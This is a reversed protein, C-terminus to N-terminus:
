TFEMEFKSFEIMIERKCRSCRIIIGDKSKKALLKGCCCRIDDNAARSIKLRNQNLLKIKMHEKVEAILINIV